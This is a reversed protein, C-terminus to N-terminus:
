GTQFQNYKQTIFEGTMARSRSLPIPYECESSPGPHLSPKGSPQDVNQNNVELFKESVTTTIEDLDLELPKTGAGEGIELNAWPYIVEDLDDDYDEIVEPELIVPTLFSIDYISDILGSVCFKFLKGDDHRYIYHQRRGWSSSGFVALKMDTNAIFDNQIRCSEEQERGGIQPEFGGEWMNDAAILEKLFDVIKCNACENTDTM